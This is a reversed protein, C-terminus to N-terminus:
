GASFGLLVIRSRDIQFRQLADDLVALAHPPDHRMDWLHYEHKAGGELTYYEGAGETAEPALLIASRKAAEERYQFIAHGACGPSGHLNMWLECPKKRDYHPPFLALYRFRGTRTHFEQSGWLSEVSAFASRSALLAMASFLLACVNPIM